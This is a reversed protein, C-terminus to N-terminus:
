GETSSPFKVRDHENPAQCSLEKTTENNYTFCSVIRFDRALSAAARGEVVSIRAAGQEMAGDTMGGATGDAGAAFAVGDPNQGNTIRAAASFLDAKGRLLLRHGALPQAIVLLPLSVQFADAFPVM